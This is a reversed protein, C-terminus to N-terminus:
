EKNINKILEIEDRFYTNDVENEYENIMKVQNECLDNYTKLAFRAQEGNDKIILSLERNYSEAKPQHIYNDKNAYFELIKKFLVVINNSQEIDGIRKESNMM